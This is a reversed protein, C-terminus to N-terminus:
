KKKLFGDMRHMINTHVFYKLSLLEESVKWNRVELGSLAICWFLAKRTTYGLLTVM